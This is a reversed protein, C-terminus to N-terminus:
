LRGEARLEALKHEISKATRGFHKVMWARDMSLTVAAILHLEQDFTWARRANPVEDRSPLTRKHGTTAQTTDDTGTPTFDVAFLTALQEHRDANDQAQVELDFLEYFTQFLDTLESLTRTIRHVTDRLAARHHPDNYPNTNAM